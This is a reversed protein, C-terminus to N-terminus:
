QAARLVQEPTAAGTGRQMITISAVLNGFRAAALSDQTAALASAAGASFSDGAGCIDVPHEVQKTAIREIGDPLVVSAGEGGHTIILRPSNTHARLARLDNPRGIRACAAAAESENIKLSVSRFHEVRRRSDAWFVKAPNEQALGAITERVATSIAGGDDTEAQDAVIVMDFKPCFEKLRSILEQEVETPTPTVNIWDVRPLDEVGTTANLLKTYTYTRIDASRIMLDAGIGTQRLAELLQFGNGDMGVPGLVDVRRLGLSVLNAAVTGGAGPTSKQSVVAIRPIGTEVSPQSWKPDYTCWQDLCIDGVILASLNALGDLIQAANM